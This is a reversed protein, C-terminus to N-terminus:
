SGGKDGPPSFPRTRGADRELWGVCLVRDDTSGVCCRLSARAARGPSTPARWDASFHAEEAIVGHCAMFSILASVVISIGSIAALSATSSFPLNSYIVSFVKRQFVFSM